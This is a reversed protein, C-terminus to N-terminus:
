SARLFRHQAGEAFPSLELLLIAKPSCLGYATPARSLEVFAIRECIFALLCHFGVGLLFGALLALGATLSRSPFRLLIDHCSTTGSGGAEPCWTTDCSSERLLLSKGTLAGWSHGPSFHLVTCKSAQGQNAFVFPLIGFSPPNLSHLVKRQIGHYQLGTGGHLSLRGQAGRGGRRGRCRTLSSYSTSYVGRSWTPIFRASPWAEPGLSTGRGLALYSRNAGHGGLRLIVACDIGGQTHSTM